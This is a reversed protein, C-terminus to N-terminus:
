IYLLWHQCHHRYLFRSILLYVYALSPAVFVYIFLLSIKKFIYMRKNVIRHFIKNLKREWSSFFRFIRSDTMTWVDGSNGIANRHNQLKKCNTMQQAKPATLTLLRVSVHSLKLSIRPRCSKSGLQWSSAYPKAYAGRQHRVNAVCSVSFKNRQVSNREPDVVTRKLTNQIRDEDISLFM